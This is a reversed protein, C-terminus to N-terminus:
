HAGSLTPPMLDAVEPMLLYGIMVIAAALLVAFALALTDLSYTPSAMMQAGIGWTTLLARVPNRPREALSFMSTVNRGYPQHGTLSEVRGGRMGIKPV